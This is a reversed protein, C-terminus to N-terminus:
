KYLWFEKYRWENYCFLWYGVFIAPFPDTEM